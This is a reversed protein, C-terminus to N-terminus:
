VTLDLGSNTNILSQAATALLNESAVSTVTPVTGEQTAGSYSGGPQQEQFHGQFQQGSVDVNVNALTFGNQALHDRLLQMQGEIIQKVEPHDALFTASVQHNSSVSLEVHIKGLEPPHLQLIAKHQRLRLSQLLGSELQKLVDARMETNLPTSSQSSRSSQSLAKVGDQVGTTNMQVNDLSPDTDLNNSSEGARRIEGNPGIELHFEAHEVDIVPLRGANSSQSQGNAAVSINSLLPVDKGPRAAGGTNGQSITQSLIEEKDTLSNAAAFLSASDGSISARDLYVDLRGQSTAYLDNEGNAQVMLPDQFSPILRSETDSAPHLYANSLGIMDGQSAMGSESLEMVGQDPTFLATAKQVSGTFQGTQDIHLTASYMWLNWGGSFASTTESAGQVGTGAETSPEAIPVTVGNVNGNMDPNAVDLDIEHGSSSSNGNFLGTFIAMFTFLVALPSTDQSPNTQAVEIVENNEPNVSDNAVDRGAAPSALLAPEQVLDASPAESITPLPTSASDEDEKIGGFLYAFFNLFGQFPDLAQTTDEGAPTPAETEELSSVEADQSLNETEAPLIQAQNAADAPPTVNDASSVEELVHSFSQSTTSDPQTGDMPIDQAPGVAAEPAPNNFGPLPFLTM